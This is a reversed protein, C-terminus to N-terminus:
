SLLKPKDKETHRLMLKTTVKLTLSRKILDNTQINELIPFEFSNNSIHAQSEALLLFEIFKLANKKNQSFNLIGAGSINIHAGRGKQNPFIPKVNMAAKQQEKGKKGSLM